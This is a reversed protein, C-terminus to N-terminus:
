NVPVLRKLEEHWNQVLVIHRLGVTDSTPDSTKIMVFRNTKPDVDYPRNPGSPDAYPGEFLVEPMGVSFTPVTVIPVAFLQRGNVSVYFLEAGDNSWRPVRGGRTSIRQRNGFDPFSQVYIEQQGSVNSQYAIWHGDPSVAPAATIFEDEILPDATSDGEMSVTAIDVVIGPRVESFLLTSGDPTWADPLFSLVDRKNTLIRKPTGTGDAPTWFLEWSGGRNSQFVISEGDPTWIPSEDSGPDTTVRNLIGRNTDYTQVDGGSDLALRVGDPSVRVYDYDGLPAGIAEERGQRDVWVLQRGNDSSQGPVYILAGNESVSFNATGSLKTLVDELVPVPEGVTELRDPDFGIAWLNGQVAYVLHGTSSYHPYSGGPVIVVPELTDLPLVAIKSGEAGSGVTRETFLVAEGGPLIDPWEHITRREPDPTTM